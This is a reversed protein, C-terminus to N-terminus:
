FDANSPTRPVAFVEAAPRSQCWVSGLYKLIVELVQLALPVTSHSCCLHKHPYHQHLEPTGRLIPPEVLPASKTM